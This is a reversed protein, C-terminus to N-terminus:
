IGDTPFDGSQKHLKFMFCPIHLFFSLIHSLSPIHKKIQISLSSNLRLNHFDLLETDFVNWTMNWWWMSKTDRIYRCTLSARACSYQLHPHSFASTQLKLLPFQLKLAIHESNDLVPLSCYGTGPERGWQEKRNLCIVCVWLWGYCWAATTRPGTLHDKM